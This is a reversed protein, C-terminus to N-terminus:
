PTKPAPNLCAETGAAARERATRGEEDKLAPDAGHELLLAAMDGYGKACAVMLPTDGFQDQLDPNAGHELLFRAVDLHGMIAAHYLPPRKQVDDRNVAAGNDVLFRVIDLRGKEAAFSLPTRGGSDPVDIAAGKTHLWRVLSLDGADLVARLVAGRGIDDKADLHAGRKLALEVTKQDGASAADLLRQDVTYPQPIRPEGIGLPRGQPLRTTRVPAPHATPTPPPASSGSECAAFLLLLSLLVSWVARIM